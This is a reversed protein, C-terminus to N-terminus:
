RLEKEDLDKKYAKVWELEAKLLYQPRRALAMRHKPCGCDLLFKELEKYCKVGETLRKEYKELCVLAEKKNLLWMHSTALDVQYVMKEPESLLDIVKDKVGKKGKPTLSYVKQAVNKNSLEVSSKLLGEKELKNLLKYVSSMSIETWDRMSRENISTEIEYAHMPKETLMGLLATEKNSITAM